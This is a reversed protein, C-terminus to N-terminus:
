PRRNQGYMQEDPMAGMFGLCFFTILLTAIVSLVLLSVFYKFVEEGIPGTKHEGVKNKTGDVVAETYIRLQNDATVDATLMWNTMPPPNFNQPIIKAGKVSQREEPKMNKKGDITVRTLELEVGLGAKEENARRSLGNGLLPQPAASALGTFATLAYLAWILGQDRATFLM